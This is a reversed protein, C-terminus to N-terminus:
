DRDKDTFSGIRQIRRMIETDIDIASSTTTPPNYLEIQKGKREGIGTLPSLLIVVLWIVVIGLALVLRSLM